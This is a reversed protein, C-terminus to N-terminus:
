CISHTLLDNKKKTKMTSTAILLSPAHQTLMSCELECNESRRRNEREQAEEKKHGEDVWQNRTTSCFGGTLTSLLLMGVCFADDRKECVVPTSTLM